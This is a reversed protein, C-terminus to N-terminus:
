SEHWPEAERGRDFITGILRQWAVDIGTPQVGESLAGALEAVRSSVARSLERIEANSRGADRDILRATDRAMVHAAWQGFLEGIYRQVLASPDGRNREWADAAEQGSADAVPVSGQATQLLVARLAREAVPLAASYTEEFLAARADSVVEAIVAAPRDAAALKDGLIGHAEVLANAFTALAPADLAERWGTDGALFLTVRLREVPLQNDLARNFANWRPVKPSGFSSSTGM